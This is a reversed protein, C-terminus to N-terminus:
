CIPTKLGIGLWEALAATLPTGCAECFTAQPRNEHQCRPCQVSSIESAPARDPYCLCGGVKLVDEVRGM